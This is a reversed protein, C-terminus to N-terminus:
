GIPYRTEVVAELRSPMNVVLAITNQRILGDYSSNQKAQSHYVSKYIM